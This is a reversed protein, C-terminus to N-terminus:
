VSSIFHTLRAISQNWFINWLHFQTPDFRFLFFSRFTNERTPYYRFEHPPRPKHALTICMWVSKARKIENQKIQIHNPPNPPKATRRRRRFDLRCRKSQRSRRLHVLLPTVNCAGNRTFRFCQNHWFLARYNIIPQKIIKAIGCM